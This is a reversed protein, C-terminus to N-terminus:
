VIQPVTARRRICFLQPSRLVFDEPRGECLPKHIAFENFRRLAEDYEEPGCKEYEYQFRADNVAELLKTETRNLEEFDSTQPGSLKTLENM